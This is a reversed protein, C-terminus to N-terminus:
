GKLVVNEVRRIVDHIAEDVADHSYTTEAMDRLKSLIVEWTEHLATRDLELNKIAEDTDTNLSITCNKHEHDWAATARTYESDERSHIVDCRWNHLGWERFWFFVQKTFYKFQAKTTKM